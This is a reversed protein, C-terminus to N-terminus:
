ATKSYKVGIQSANKSYYDTQRAGKRFKCLNRLYDDFTALSVTKFEKKMDLECCLEFFDVKQGPMSDPSFEPDLERIAALIALITEKKSEIKSPNKSAGPAEKWEPGLWARVHESPKEQGEDDGFGSARLWAAFTHRTITQFERTEKKEVQVTRPSFDRELWTDSAFSGGRRARLAPVREWVSVERTGTVTEVENQEISANIADIMAKLNRSAIFKEHNQGEPPYQLFALEGPTFSEPWDNLASKLVRRAKQWAIGGRKPPQPNETM